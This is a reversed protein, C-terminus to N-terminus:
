QAGRASEPISSDETSEAAGISVDQEQQLSVAGPQAVQRQVYNATGRLEAAMPFRAADLANLERECQQSFQNFWRVRTATTLCFEFKDMAQVQLPRAADELAGVYIAYLEDDNEIEEPIPAERIQEMFSRYMEGVRAAAAIEWQPIELQAILNYASEARVLAERKQNLWQRFDNEAWRQVRQLNRGGSFRPFRIARFAAYEYEALYFLAESVADKARVLYLQREEDSVDELQAIREGANRQWERTAAEFHRRAEDKRDLEWQARGLQVNARIVEHPLGRRGYQRLWNMYHGFVRNWDNAREYISGLSFIVQSTERPMRQRYNREFLRADELAEEQQGLGLRFFVANQLAEHAIPCTGTRRQEETCRSGDEGPFQRAFREYWEAAQNYIALAHYNAGVLYVARRALESEPFNQILITRVRIARGLLRAAEYNLAANYLVEDLRGCERHERAIGVLITAADRYRRERQAAEASLRLTDCRLQQLVGCLDPHADRAEPTAFYFGSLPEISDAIETICQSRQWQTGLINLSDLYLNAAYEALESDRHNWAIDRFLVAAEEYRNSEYFIRARRYKITPLEESEAVYCVFRSFANLMGSETPNLERPAFQAATNEPQAEERRGRRGRRSSRAEARDERTQRERAQYEQQYLNNYCLVAAYAADQTFEGQPNLEVVRDFAPGCTAWEEM